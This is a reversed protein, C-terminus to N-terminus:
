EQECYKSVSYRYLLVDPDWFDAPLGAKLKLHAMFQAPEPLQEWVQPLFTGRNMGFHLVVGDIGPRLREIAEQEDNVPMAELASLVSVEVQVRTFEEVSLPPFRPDHFAAAVANARVDDCLPRYAELSGICGRLQGALHLTVFSAAQEQMSGSVPPATVHLGLQQAIAARALQLLADGDFPM